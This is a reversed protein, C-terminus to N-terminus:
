DKVQWDGYYADRCVEVPRHIESGDPMRTVQTAESCDSGAYVNDRSYAGRDDPDLRYSDGNHSGFGSARGYRYQPSGPDAPYIDTPTASYPSPSYGGYGGGGYGNYYPGGYNPNDDYSSGPPYGYGGYGSGYGSPGPGCRTADAGIGSGVLGGLVAGVATGDGKHGSAAVNSGLVGGLIGGLIMGGVQNDQRAQHCSRVVGQASAPLAMATASAALASLVLLAKIRM